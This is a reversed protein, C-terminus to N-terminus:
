LIKSTFIHNMLLSFRQLTSIDPIRRNLCQSSFVSLEIEAMNLWSGQKPTYYWKEFVKDIESYPLLPTYPRQM